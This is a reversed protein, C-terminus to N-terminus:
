NKKKDFNEIIYDCWQIPAEFCLKLTKVTEIFEADIEKSKKLSSNLSNILTVKTEFSNLFHTLEDKADLIKKNKTSM